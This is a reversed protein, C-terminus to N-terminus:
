NNAIAVGSVQFGMLRWNSVINQLQPVQVQIWFSGSSGQPVTGILYPGNTVANTFSSNSAIMTTILPQM